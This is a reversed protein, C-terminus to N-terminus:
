NTLQKKNFTMINSSILNVVGIAIDKALMEFTKEKSSLSAFPAIDNVEYASYSDLKTKLLLKQNLDTIEIFAIFRAGEKVVEKESFVVTDIEKTVTIKVRYSPLDQPLRLVLRKLEKKLLYEIKPNSTSIKIFRLVDSPKELSSESGILSRTEHCGGLLIIILGCLAEKTCNRFM